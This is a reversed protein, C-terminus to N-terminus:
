SAATRATAWLGEDSRRWGASKRNSKRNGDGDM